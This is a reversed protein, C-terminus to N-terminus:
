SSGLDGHRGGAVSSKFERRQIGFGGHFLIFVLAFNAVANAMKADEFHWLDLVDSGFLIGGGLAVLIAPVSWRDLWVAALVVTILILPSVIYILDM